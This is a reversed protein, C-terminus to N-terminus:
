RRLFEVSVGLEDIRALAQETQREADPAGTAVAVMALGGHELSAQVVDGLLVFTAHTSEIRQRAEGFRGLQMLIIADARRALTEQWVSPRPELLERFRRLAARSKDIQHQLSYSAISEFAACLLVYEAGVTTQPAACARECLEAASAFDGALSALLARAYAAHASAALQLPGQVEAEFSQALEELEARRNTFMYLRTLPPTLAFRALGGRRALQLAEQATRQADDFRALRCFAECEAALLRIFGETPLLQASRALARGHAVIELTAEPKQSGRLVRAAYDSLIGMVLGWHGHAEAAALARSGYRAGGARDEGITAVLGAVGDALLRALASSGRQLHAQYTQYVHLTVDPGLFRAGTIACIAAMVRLDDADAALLREAKAVHANVRGLDAVRSDPAAFVMAAMVHARAAVSPPLEGSEAEDLIPVLVALAGRVDMRALVQAQVLGLTALKRGAASSLASSSLLALLSDEAPQWNDSCLQDLLPALLAEDAGLPAHNRRPPASAPAPAIPESVVVDEDEEVEAPEAKVAGFGVGEAALRRLAEVMKARPRRAEKNDEPLEWRLVTLSTVGLLRAFAARSLSGRIARIEAHDM